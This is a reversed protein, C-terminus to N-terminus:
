ILVEYAGSSERKVTPFCAGNFSKKQIRECEPISVGGFGQILEQLDFESIYIALSEFDKEV